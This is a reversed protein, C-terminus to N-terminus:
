MPLGEYLGTAGERAVVVVVDNLVKERFGAECYAFYYEWMRRFREAGAEGVERKAGKVGGGGAPRVVMAPRIKEEFNRM